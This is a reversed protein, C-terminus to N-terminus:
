GDECGPLFSLVFPVAEARVYAALLPRRAELAETTRTHESSLTLVFPVAEATGYAALRILAKAGSTRKEM